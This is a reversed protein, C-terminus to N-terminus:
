HECVPRPGSDACACLPKLGGVCRIAALAPDPSLDLRTPVGFRDLMYYAGETRPVGPYALRTETALGADVITRRVRPDARTASLSVTALSM